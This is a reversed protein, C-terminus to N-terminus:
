QFDLYNVILVMDDTLSDDGNQDLVIGAQKIKTIDVSKLKTSVKATLLVVGDEIKTIGPHPNGALTDKIDWAGFWKSAEEWNSDKIFLKIGAYKDSGNGDLFDATLKIKAVMTKSTGDFETPYTGIYAQADTTAGWKISINLDSYKDNTIDNVLTVDAKTITKTWQATYDGVMKEFKMNSVLDALEAVKAEALEKETEAIKKETEATTVKVNATKLDSQTTTLSSTTTKLNNEAKTLSTTATELEATKTTLNDNATKLTEEKEALTTKTDDLETQLQDCGTFLLALIVIMLISNTKKM